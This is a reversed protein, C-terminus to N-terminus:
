KEGNMGLVTETEKEGELDNCETFTKMFNRVAPQKVHFRIMKKKTQCAVGPTGLYCPSIKDERKFIDSSNFIPSAGFVLTVGCLDACFSRQSLYSNGPGLLKIIPPLLYCFLCFNQAVHINPVKASYFCYSLITLNM